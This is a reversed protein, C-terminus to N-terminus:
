AEPTDTVASDASEESAISPALSDAGTKAARAAMVRDYIVNSIDTLEGDESKAVDLMRHCGPCSTVVKNQGTAALEDWRDRNVKAPSDWLFGGGGGGCCSPINPSKGATYATVGAAELLEDMYRSEDNHIMKCPHHTAVTEAKKEM